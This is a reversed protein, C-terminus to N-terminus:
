KETQHTASLQCGFISLHQIDKGMMHFRPKEVPIWIFPASYLERGIGLQCLCTQLQGIGAKKKKGYLEGNRRGAQSDMAERPM